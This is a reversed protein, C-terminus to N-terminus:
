VTNWNLVTTAYPTFMLCLHCWVLIINSISGNQKQIPNAPKKGSTTLYDDPLGKGTTVQSKPLSKRQNLTKASYNKAYCTWPLDNIVTKKALKDNGCKKWTKSGWTEHWARPMKETSLTSMSKGSKSSLPWCPM